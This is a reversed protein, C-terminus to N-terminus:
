SAGEALSKRLDRLRTKVSGDLIKDGVRAVLGATMDSDVDATLEIDKGVVESLFKSLRGQSQKTMAVASVVHARERGSAQDLIKNYQDLIDQVLSITDRQILMGMLNVVLKDVDNLNTTVMEIKREVRVNPMGLFASIRSDEVIDRCLELGLRCKDVAKNENALQYLALAYRKASPNKSM